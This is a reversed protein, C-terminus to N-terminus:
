ITFNLKAPSHDTAGVSNRARVRFVHPGRGLHRYAKPSGCRSFARGDLSCSFTSGAQTSRFRFTAAGSKPHLSTASITTNPAPLGHVALGFLYNLGTIFSQNVGTGDVAVGIPDNAGSIFSQDVGGGALDARGITDTDGIAGTSAWYVHGADVAIGTPASAATILSDNVGTGDLNARGITRNDSNAWYIYANAAPPLLALALFGAFALSALVAIKRATGEFGSDAGGLLRM